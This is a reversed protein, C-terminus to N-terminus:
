KDKISFIEMRQQSLNFVSILFSMYKTDACVPHKSSSSYYIIRKRLFDRGPCFHLIIQIKRKKNTKYITLYRECFHFMVHFHFDKYLKQLFKFPSTSEDRTNCNSYISQIRDM